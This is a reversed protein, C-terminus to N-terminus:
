RSEALRQGVPRVHPAVKMPRDHIIKFPRLSVFLSEAEDMHIIFGLLARGLIGGAPIRLKGPSISSSTSERTSVPSSIQFTRDIRQTDPLGQNKMVGRIGANKAMAHKRAPHSVGGSPFDVVAAAATGGVSSFTFNGSVTEKLSCM